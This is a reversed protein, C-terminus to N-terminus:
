TSLLLLLDHLLLYHIVALCLLLLFCTDIIGDHLFLVVVSVYKCVVIFMVKAVTFCFLAFRTFTNVSTIIIV